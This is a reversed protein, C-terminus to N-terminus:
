FIERNLIEKLQKLGKQILRSVAKQSLGLQNGIETQSLDYYFFLFIAKREIEILKELASSLTIKDEIPLQFTVLNQARIKKQLTQLGNKDPAELHLCDLSDQLKFIEIIGDESINLSDALEKSTPFRSLKQALVEAEAFIQYALFRLWRPHKILDVKDRLYHRIEGSIQHTAYTSFQTEKAPDFRDVAKILGIIGVQVLDELPEGHKHLSIKRAISEVLPLNRSILESRLKLDCVRTFKELAIAEPSASMERLGMHNAGGPILM